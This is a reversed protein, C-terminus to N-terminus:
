RFVIARSMRGSELDWTWVEDPRLVFEPSAWVRGRRMTYGGLYPREIVIQVREPTRVRRTCYELKGGMRVEGMGLRWGGMVSVLFIRSHTGAGLENDVVVCAQPASPDEPTTACGALVAAATLLILHTGSWSPLGSMTAIM